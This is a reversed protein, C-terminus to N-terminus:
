HREDEREAQIEEEKGKPLKVRDDNVQYLGFYYQSKMLWDCPNSSDFVSFDTRSLSMTINKYEKKSTDL